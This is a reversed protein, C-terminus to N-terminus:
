ERGGGVRCKKGTERCRKVEGGRGGNGCRQRKEEVMGIGRGKRTSEDQRERNGTGQWERVEARLVVM